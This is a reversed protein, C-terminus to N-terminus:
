FRRCKYIFFAIQKPQEFTQWVYRKIGVTDNLVEPIKLKM